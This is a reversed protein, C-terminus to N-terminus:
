NQRKRKRSKSKKLGINENKVSELKQRLFYLDERLRNEINKQLAASPKDEMLGFDSPLCQVSEDTMGENETKFIRRLITISKLDKSNLKGVIQVDIDTGCLFLRILQYNGIVDEFYIRRRAIFSNAENKHLYFALATVYFTSKNTDKQLWPIEQHNLPNVATKEDILMPLYLLDGYPISCLNKLTTYFEPIYGSM